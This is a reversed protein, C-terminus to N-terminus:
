STFYEAVSRYRAINAHMVVLCLLLSQTRTKKRRKKEKRKRKKKRECFIDSLLFRLAFYCLRDGYKLSRNQICTSVRVFTAAKDFHKNYVTWKTKKHETHTQETSHLVHLQVARSLVALQVLRHHTLSPGACIDRLDVQVCDNAYPFDSCSVVHVTCTMYRHTQITTFTEISRLRRM